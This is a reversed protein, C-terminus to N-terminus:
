LSNLLNFLTKKVRQSPYNQILDQMLNKEEKQFKEQDIRLDECLDNTSLWNRKRAYILDAIAKFPKAIFLTQGNKQTVQNVGFSFASMPIHEYSFVGIPTDFEATRKVSACTITRVAEPIWGYYNLSSEFSIYSPGYIILAIEFADFAQKTTKILYLDRKIPILYGERVARKIKSYRSDSTSDLLCCFDTGSIYAKPWEYLIELLTKM